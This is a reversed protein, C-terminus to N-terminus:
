LTYKDRIKVTEKTVKLFDAYKANTQKNVKKTIGRASDQYQKLTTMENNLPIVNEDRMEDLSHTKRKGNDFIYKLIYHGAPIDERPKINIYEEGIYLDYKDSDYSLFEKSMNYFDKGRRLQERLLFLNKNIRYKEVEASKIQKEYVTNSVKQEWADLDELKETNKFNETETDFGFKYLMKKVMKEIKKHSVGRRKRLFRFLWNIAKDLAEQYQIHEEELLIRIYEKERLANLIEMGENIGIDESSLHYEHVIAVPFKELGVKVRGGILANLVKIVQKNEPTTEM